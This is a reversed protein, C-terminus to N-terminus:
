SFGSLPILFANSNFFLISATIGFRYFEENDIIVVYGEEIMVKQIAVVLEVEDAQRKSFFGDIGAQIM